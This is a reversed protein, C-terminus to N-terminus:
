CGPVLPHQCETPLDDTIQLSPPPPTAVNALRPGAQLLAAKIFILQETYIHNYINKCKGLGTAEGPAQNAPNTGSDLTWDSYQENGTDRAQDAGGVALDNHHSMAIYPQISINVGLTPIIPTLHQQGAWGPGRM